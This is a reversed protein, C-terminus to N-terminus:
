GGGDEPLTAGFGLLELGSFLLSLGVLLGLVAM